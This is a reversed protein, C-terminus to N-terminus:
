QAVGGPLAAVEEDIPGVTIDNGLYVSRAHDYYQRAAEVDGARAALRANVWAAQGVMVHEAGLKETALALSNKGLEIAEDIRGLEALAEAEIQMVLIMQHSRKGHAKETLRRARTVNQYAEEGRGLANYSIALNILGNALNTSDDGFVRSQVALADEALVIAEEPRPRSLLGALNLKAAAVEPHDAGFLEEGLAIAERYVVEAKQQSSRFTHTNAINILTLVARNSRAGFRERVFALDEELVALAEELRGGVRLAVGKNNLLHETVKDNPPGRDNAAEGLEAWVLAEETRGGSVGTEWVVGAAAEAFLGPLGHRQAEIAAARQLRAAEEHDGLFRHVRGRLMTAEVWTPPDGGELDGHEELVQEALALASEYRGAVTNARVAAFAEAWRAVDDEMEPPVARRRALADLDSCEDLQPLAGAAALARDVVSADAAQFVDLLARLGLQKRELCATRLDLMRESQEGRHHAACAEVQGARWAETWEDIGRQAETWSKAAYSRDTAAFAREIEGARASNWVEDIPAGADRCPNSATFWVAAVATVIAVGGVVWPGRRVRKTQLAALLARMDAFRDDKSPALGRQLAESIRKPIEPGDSPWIPARTKAQHLAGLGAGAFPVEGALAEWVSACFSYQDSRADAPEGRHQEPPMYRPTGVIRTGVTRSPAALDISDEGGPLTPPDADADLAADDIEIRALGFDLVRVRGDRGIIANGPKFDRHVIGAAHAEALGAGAQAYVRVVERWTRGPKRWHALDEGDVYEMAVFARGDVSGVDHVAVINPHSLKALAQAEGLLRQQAEPHLVKIAIKRDLRGDWAAYVVGNGGEGLKELLAYRGIRPPIAPGGFLAGRVRARAVDEALGAEPPDHLVSIGEDASVLEVIDPGRM